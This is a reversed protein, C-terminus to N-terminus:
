VGIHGWNNLATVASYVGAALLIALVVWLAARGVSRIRDLSTDTQM